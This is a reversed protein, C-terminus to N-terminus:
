IVGAGKEKGSEAKEETSDIIIKRLAERARSIRSRVTGPRVNLIQAIEDYSKEEFERLLIIERSKADIRRLAKSVTRKNDASDDEGPMQAPAACINENLGVFRRSPSNLLNRSENIAIRYLWTSFFDPNKLSSLKRFASNFVKVTVDEADMRSGTIKCAVSFIRDANKLYLEKKAALGTEGQEMATMVLLKM